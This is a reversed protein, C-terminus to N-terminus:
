RSEGPASAGSGAESRRALHIRIARGLVQAYQARGERTTLRARDTLNTVFGSEFLVSPVDPARLVALAAARRPQPIFPLTGAGERLVLAAFDLAEEQTRQQSLEVLITSVAASQGAITIGNLRDADNERAAFRAAAESSAANSLTYISAGSVEEKEGASDAHISIFLSAELRRAIEPRYALPLIRDDSRTLAVRIGGQRLLEDRLALALALTIAKEEFRRGEPDTGIAGPDRGGHGADIVVLPRSPDDPGAIPPLELPVAPAEEGEGAVAFRLVYERGWVPVPIAQGTVRAGGVLALPVLLVILLLTRYSM